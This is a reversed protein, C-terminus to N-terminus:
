GFRGSNSLTGARLISIHNKVKIRLLEFVHYSKESRSAERSDLWELEAKIKGKIQRGTLYVQELVSNVNKIDKWLLDRKDKLTPEGCFEPNQHINSIKRKPPLM